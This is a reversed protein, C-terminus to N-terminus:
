QIVHSIIEFRRVDCAIVANLKYLGQKNLLCSSELRLSPECIASYELIETDGNKYYVKISYFHNDCQRNEACGTLIIITTLILIIKKMNKLKTYINNRCV